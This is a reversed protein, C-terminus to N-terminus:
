ALVVISSVSPALVAVLLILLLAAWAVELWLLALVRMLTPQLSVLFGQAVTFLFTPLLGIVLARYTAVHERRFSSLPINATLLVLIFLLLTIAILYGSLISFYVTERDHVCTTINVVQLNQPFFFCLVNHVYKQM